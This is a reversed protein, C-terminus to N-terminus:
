ILSDDDDEDDKGIIQGVFGDVKRKLEQYENRTKALQEQHYELAEIIADHETKCKSAINWSENKDHLWFGSWEGDNIREYLWLTETKFITRTERM